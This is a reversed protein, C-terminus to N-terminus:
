TAICRESQRRKERFSIQRTQTRTGGGVGILGVTIGYFVGIAQVAGSIADNVGDHFHLRPLLFRRALVLGILSGTEIVFVMLLGLLLPSTQYAWIPM